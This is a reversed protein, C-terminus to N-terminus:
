EDTPNPSLRYAVISAHQRKSWIWCDAEHGHNEEGGKFRVDVKTHACVPCRGGNWDIWGSDRM